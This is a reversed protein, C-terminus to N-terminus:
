HTDSFEHMIRNILELQKDSSSDVALEKNIQEQLQYRVEALEKEKSHVTSTFQKLNIEYQELTANQQAITTKFKLQELAYEAECKEKELKEICYLGYLKEYNNYQYWCYAGLLLYGIGAIPILYKSIQPTVLNVLTTWM